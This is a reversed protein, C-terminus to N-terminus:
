RVESEVSDLRTHRCRRRSKKLQDTNLQKWHRILYRRTPALEKAVTWVRSNTLLGLTVMMKRLGHRSNEVQSKPTQCNRTHACDLLRNLLVVWSSIKEADLSGGHWRFEVRSNESLMYCCNVGIYRQWYTLLRQYSRTSHCRSWQERLDPMPRCYGCTRRSPAVLGYIVPEFRYTLNLLSRIFKPNSRVEEATDLHVHLGTTRNVQCNLFTALKVTKPVVQLFEEFGNLPKTKIELQHFTIGSFGQSDGELSGDYEVCLTVGAPVPDHSYPRAVAPLGNANFIQALREQVAM